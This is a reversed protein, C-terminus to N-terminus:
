WRPLCPPWLLCLGPPSLVNWARTVPFDWLPADQPFSFGAPFGVWLLPDGGSLLSHNSLYIGVPLDITWTLLRASSKPNPPLTWGRDQLWLPMGHMHAHEAVETTDSEKRSGISQLETWPIRWVLISCHIAMGEELADEHGLSWVWTEQMEKIIPPNNVVLGGPFGSPYVSSYIFYVILLSRHYQVSFGVWYQLLRYPSLIWFLISVQIHIIFDSQQARSVLM